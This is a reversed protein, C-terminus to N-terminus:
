ASATQMNHLLLKAQRATERVLPDPDSAFRDLEYALSTLKLIGIASAGCSRLWPDDSAVLAAAAQQSNEIRVPVLRDAIAARESANVKGDLLPVLIERLQSKLVTDLFELANDHVTM